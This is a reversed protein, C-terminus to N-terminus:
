LRLCISEQMHREKQRHYDSSNGVPKEYRNFVGPRQDRLM